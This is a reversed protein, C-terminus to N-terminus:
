VVMLILTSRLNKKWVFQDCKNPKVGECFSLRQVDGMYWGVSLTTAALSGNNRYKPKCWIDDKNNKKTEMRSLKDNGVVTQSFLAKPNRLM